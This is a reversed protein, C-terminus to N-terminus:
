RPSIRTGAAKSRAPFIPGFLPDDDVRRYFAEVLARVNTENPELERPTAAPKQDSTM